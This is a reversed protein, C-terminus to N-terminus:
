VRLYALYGVNLVNKGVCKNEIFKTPNYLTEIKVKLNVLDSNM